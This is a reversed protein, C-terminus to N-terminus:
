RGKAKEAEISRIQNTLRDIAADADEIDRQIRERYAPDTVTRLERTLDRKDRKYADRKGEAVDTQMDRMVPLVAGQAIQTQDRVFGRHAPVLPELLAAGAYAAPLGGLLAILGAATKFPHRKALALTRAILPKPM